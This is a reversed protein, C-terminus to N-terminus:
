HKEERYDSWAMTVFHSTEKLRSVIAEAKIRDGGRPTLANILDVGNYNTTVIVPKMDEYRDNIITYLTSASWETCQEKGLDDIVLLDASKYLNLLQGETANGYEDFSNKLDQLLNNATKFIVPVGQRLLALSIAAALHTKGTGITGEIYLGEGLAKRQEFTVVYRKAITLCKHREPTDDVFNEFTRQMFRKKLGSQGLLREVRIKLDAQREREKEAEQEAQIKADYDSWYKTARECDCRPEHWFFVTGSFVIGEPELLKGCFECTKEKPPTHLSQIGNKRAEALTIRGSGRSTAQPSSDEPLLRELSGM